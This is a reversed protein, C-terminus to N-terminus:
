KTILGRTSAKKELDEDLKDFDDLVGKQLIKAYRSMTQRVNTHGQM